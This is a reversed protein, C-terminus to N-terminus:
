GPFEPLPEDAIMASVVARFHGPVIGDQGGFFAQDGRIISGAGQCSYSFVAKSEPKHFELLFRTRCEKPSDLWTPKGLARLLQEIRGRDVTSEVEQTSGDPQISSISFRRTGELDASEVLNVTPLAGGLQPDCTVVRDALGDAHFEYLRSNYLVQM